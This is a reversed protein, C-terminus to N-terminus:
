ILREIYFLKANFGDIMDGLMVLFKFKILCTELLWVPRQIFEFKFENVARSLIEARPAKQM